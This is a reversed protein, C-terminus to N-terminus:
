AIVSEESWNSCNKFELIAIQNKKIYIYELMKILDEMEEEIKGMNGEIQPM